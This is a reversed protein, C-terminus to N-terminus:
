IWLANAPTSNPHSFSPPLSPSSPNYMCPACYRHLAYEIGGGECCYPFREEITNRGLFYSFPGKLGLNVPDCCPQFEGYARRLLRSAGPNLNNTAACSSSIPSSIAGAIQTDTPSSDILSPNFADNDLSQPQALLDPNQPQSTWQADDSLAGPAPSLPAAAQLLPSDGPAPNLPTAAQLLPSDVPAPSTIFATDFQPIATVPLLLNSITGIYLVKWILGAM